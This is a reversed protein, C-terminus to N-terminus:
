TSADGWVPHNGNKYPTKYSVGGVAVDAYPQSVRESNLLLGIPGLRGAGRLNRARVVRVQEYKSDSNMYHMNHEHVMTNMMGCHQIHYPVLATHPVGARACSM